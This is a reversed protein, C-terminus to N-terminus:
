RRGMSMTRKLKDGFTAGWRRSRDSRHNSAARGVLGTLIGVSSTNGSARTSMHASDIGDEGDRNRNRERQVQGTRRSDLRRLGLWGLRGNGDDVGDNELVNRIFGGNLLGDHGGNADMEVDWTSIPERVGSVVALKLAFQIALAVKRVKMRTAQVDASWSLEDSTNESRPRNQPAPWSQETDNVVQHVGTQDNNVRSFCVTETRTACSRTQRSFKAPNRSGNTTEHTSSQLVLKRLPADNEGPSVPTVPSMPVVETEDVSATATGTTTRSPATLVADCDFVLPSAREANTKASCKNPAHYALTKEKTDAPVDMTVELPVHDSPDKADTFNTMWPHLLATAATLRREPRPQLLARVFSRCEKSTRRWASDTFTLRGQVALELTRDDDDRGDYPYHGSIMRYLMIGTAYVDVAAGYPKRSIIEPAIYVPTGLLSRLCVHRFNDVFNVYGFDAISVRRIPFRSSDCLVNELKVDRHVYGHQHLFACATLVQHMVPRAFREPIRGGYAQVNDKMTGGPMFDMVIFVQHLTNFVDHAAVVNPHTLHRMAFMERDLERATVMDFDKKKVCKVAVTRGTAHCVARHVTAFAGEGIKDQLTYFSHFDRSTALQLAALWRDFLLRDDVYFFIKSATSLTIVLTCRKSSHVISSHLISIEWDVPATNSAHVTLVAGNLRVYYRKRSSLFKRRLYVYSELDTLPRTTSPVPPPSLM